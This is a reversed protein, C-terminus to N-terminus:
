GGESGQIIESKARGVKVRPYINQTKNPNVSVCVIRNNSEDKETKLQKMCKETYEEFRSEINRLHFFMSPTPDNRTDRRTVHFSLTEMKTKNENHPTREKQRDCYSFHKCTHLLMKHLM